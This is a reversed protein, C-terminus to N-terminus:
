LLPLVYTASNYHVFIVEAVGELTVLYWIYHASFCESGYTNSCNQVFHLVTEVYASSVGITEENAFM